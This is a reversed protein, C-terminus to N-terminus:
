EFVGPVVVTTSRVGLVIILLGCGVAVGGGVGFLVVITFGGADAGDFVVILTGAGAAGAAGGAFEFELEGDVLLGDDPEPEL